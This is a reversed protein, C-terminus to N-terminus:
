GSIMASRGVSAAGGVVITDIDLLNVASGVAVGMMEIATGFLKTALPDDDDLAEAWVKSTLNSKGEKDRIHFLSTHWGAEVM